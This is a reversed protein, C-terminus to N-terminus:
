ADVFPPRGLAAVVGNLQVILSSLIFSVADVDVIVDGFQSEPLDM